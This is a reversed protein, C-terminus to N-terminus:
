RYDELIENRSEIENWLKVIGQVMFIFATSAPGFNSLVFCVARDKRTFYGCQNIIFYKFQKYNYHNTLLFLSILLLYESM